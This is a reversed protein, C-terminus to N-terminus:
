NNSGQSEVSLPSDKKLILHYFHFVMALFICGNAILTNIYDTGDCLIIIKINNEYTLMLSLVYNVGGLSLQVIIRNM